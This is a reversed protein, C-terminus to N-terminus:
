ESRISSLLQKEFSHTNEEVMDFFLPEGHNLFINIRCKEKPLREFYYGSVMSKKIVTKKIQSNINHIFIFGQDEWITITQEM